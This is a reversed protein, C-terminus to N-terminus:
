LPVQVRSFIIEKLLVFHMKNKQTIQAIQPLIRKLM